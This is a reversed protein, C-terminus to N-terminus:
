DGKPSLPRTAPDAVLWRGFRAVDDTIAVHNLRERLENANQPTPQLVAQEDLTWGGLAQALEILWEPAKKTTIPAEWLRATGDDSATLIWNSDPSFSAGIVKGSRSIVEGMPFGTQASWVQATGDKSVTVVWRSDPSFSASMVADKQRLAQNVRLNTHADWVQATQDASATVIWKGDRSFRADSVWSDHKMPKGAVEGTQVNWVLAIHDASTTVLWKSDPSFNASYVPGDHKIAKNVAAEGTQANWLNVTGEYTFTVIMRGDPSFSAGTLAGGPRVPQKWISHGNQADGLWIEQKSMTLVSHGDPSFAASILGPVPMPQGIRSGTSTNWVQAANETTTLLLQGDSSLSAGTLNDQRNEPLIPSGAAQGTKADWIQVGQKSVTAIRKGDSDFFASLMSGSGAVVGSQKMVPLTRPRQWEWIQATHNFSATVITSNDNGFRAMYITGSHRMPEGLPAGTRADWVRATRDYSATIVLRSDPSFNACRVWGDHRLPEGVEKGTAVEWIRATHDSSATVVYQSDPSFSAFNVQAEHLMAQGRPQFTRADWVRATGDDSATVIWNGDPSFNAFNVEGKHPLAVPKGSSMVPKGTLGDWVRATHDASATVVLTGAPNFAASWAPGDHRMTDGIKKGTQTDWLQAAGDFSATVIRKSDRSFKATYVRASGPQRLPSPLLATGTRADWIQATGDYSATVVETGDQNFEATRVWGTHKMPVGIPKGTEVDWVQATGDASATVVRIGEPSFSADHVEGNHHMVIVPLLFDHLEAVTLAIAKENAPNNKMADALYALSASIENQKMEGLATAYDVESIAKQRQMQHILISGFIVSLVLTLVAAIAWQRKRRRHAAFKVSIQVFEIEDLEEPRKRLADEAEALPKGEPLLFDNEKGSERWRHAAQAIRTKLRLFDKNEQVWDQVRPWSNILAEHAVAVVAEGAQNVDMVFLNARAFSSIVEKMPPNLELDKRRAPRSTAVADMTVLSSLVHPFAAQAAPSLASFVDEARKAIAGTLGGLKEYAEWTILHSETRLKYLEALCFELLPLAEPNKSAEEQLADDLKQHTTPNSEFELGAALAPMRIIQGIESVGPPSLDYQGDDAKLAQFGEIDACHAYLDSRMTTIVWVLSSRSFASIAGIFAARQAADFREITFIEELQDIVLILRAEPTKSRLTDQAFQQAVKTLAAELLPIAHTPAADLFDAFSKPDYGLQALEPLATKETFLASALCETLTGSAESPRLVAWRWCGVENVVGPRMLEPLVGARVLSSKGCGSMGLVILFVRGRTSQEILRHSIEAVALDRGFFINQHQIQFADLGRFPSGETWSIPSPKDLRVTIIKELHTTLLKEFAEDTDFTNFAAQFAGEHDQFWRALFTDLAKKQRLWEELMENSTVKIEPVATKRYVLLDPIGVKKYAEFADEFEWETGTPVTGDQRKYGQPLRTGIKAWLVCIVVDSESPRPIQAQFSSTARMPEHEWLIPEIKIYARFKTQLRQVVDYARVREARVDSPSSIFIRLTKM